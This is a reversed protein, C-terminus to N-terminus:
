AHPSWGNASGRTSVQFLVMTGHMKDARTRDLSALTGARFFVQSLGVRYMNKEISQSFLILEVEEKKDMKGDSNDGPLLNQYRRCFEDFNIHEPYGLSPSFSFTLFPPPPPPPSPFPSIFTGNPISANTSLM